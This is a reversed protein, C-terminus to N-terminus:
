GKDNFTPCFSQQRKLELPGGQASDIKKLCASLFGVGHRPGRYHAFGFGTPTGSREEKKVCLPFPFPRIRAQVRTQRKRNVSDVFTITTHHLDAFGKHVPEIGTRAEMVKASTHGNRRPKVSISARQRVNISTPRIPLLFQGMEPRTAKM